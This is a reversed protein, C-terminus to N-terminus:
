GLPDPDIHDVIGVIAADIPTLPDPMPIAAEKSSVFFVIEGTGPGAGV